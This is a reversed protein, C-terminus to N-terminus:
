HIRSHVLMVRSVRLHQLLPTLITRGQWARIASRQVLQNNMTMTSVMEQLLLPTTVQVVRRVIVIAQLMTRGQWARIASRQVQQRRM